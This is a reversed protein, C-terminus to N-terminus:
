TSVQPPVKLTVMLTNGSVTFKAGVAVTKVPVGGNLFSIFGSPFFIANKGILQYKSTGNTSPITVDFPGSLFDLSVGNDYEPALLTTSVGYTFKVTNMM